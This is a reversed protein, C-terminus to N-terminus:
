RAIGSPTPYLGILPSHSHCIIKPSFLYFVKFTDTHFTLAVYKRKIQYKRPCCEVILPGANLSCYKNNYIISEREDNRINGSMLYLFKVLYMFIIKEM